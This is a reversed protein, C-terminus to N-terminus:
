GSFTRRRNSKCKTGTSKMELGEDQSESVDHFPSLLQQFQSAELRVAPIDPDHPENGEDSSHDLEMTAGTAAITKLLFSRILMAAADSVVNGRLYADWTTDWAVVTSLSQVHGSASSIGSTAYVDVLREHALGLLALNPIRLNGALLTWPRFFLSCYKANENAARSARPMKLGEIVVVDPRKKRVLVWTHRFVNYIHAPETPFAIYDANTDPEIIVYHLAPKLTAKGNKYADSQM